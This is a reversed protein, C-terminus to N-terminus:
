QERRERIQRLKDEREARRREAAEAEERKRTAEEREAQTPGSTNRIGEMVKRFVPNGKDQNKSM